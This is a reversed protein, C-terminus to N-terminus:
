PSDIRLHSVETSRVQRDDEYVLKNMVDHIPKAMNDVDVSPKEGDHFNIIISKLKENLPPKSWVKVLEAKVKAQWALVNARASQNSVPPGLVVVELHLM